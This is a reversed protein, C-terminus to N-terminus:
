RVSAKKEQLTELEGRLDAIKEKTDEINKKTEVIDQKAEEISEEWKRINNELTVVNKEYRENTSKAKELDKETDEILETYKDMYFTYSFDKVLQKMKNFTEKEDTPSAYVDYGFSVMVYMVTKSGQGDFDAILNFLKDSITFAEVEEAIRPSKGKFKVKYNKKWYDEWAKAVVKGDDEVKVSICPRSKGDYSTTTSSVDIRQAVSSFAIFFPLLGVIFKTM